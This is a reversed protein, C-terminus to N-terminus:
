GLTLHTKFDNLCQIHELVRCSLLNISNFYEICKIIPSWLDVKEDHEKGKVM